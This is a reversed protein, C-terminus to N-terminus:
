TKYPKINRSWFCLIHSQSWVSRCGASGFRTKIVKSCPLTVHFGNASSSNLIFNEKELDLPFRVM